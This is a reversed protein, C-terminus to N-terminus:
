WQGQRSRGSPPRAHQTAGPRGRSVRHLSPVAQSVGSSGLELNLVKRNALHPWRELGMGVDAGRGWSWCPTRFAQAQAAPSQGACLLGRTAGPRAGVSAHGQPCVSTGGSEGTRCFCPESVSASPLSPFRHGEEQCVKTKRSSRLADALHEARCSGGLSVCAAGPVANLELQGVTSFLAAFM